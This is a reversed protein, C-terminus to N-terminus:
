VGIGLARLMNIVLLDSLMFFVGLMAVIVLVIGTYKMVEPTKLWRVRRAEKAVGVFFDAIKSM